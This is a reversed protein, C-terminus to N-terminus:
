ILTCPRYPHGNWGQSIGCNPCIPPGDWMRAYTVWGHEYEGHSLAREIEEIPRTDYTSDPMDAVSPATEVSHYQGHHITRRIM